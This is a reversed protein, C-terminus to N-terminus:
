KDSKIRYLLICIRTLNIKFVKAFVRTPEFKKPLIGNPHSSSFHARMNHVSKFRSFCQLHPCKVNEEERHVVKFHKKASSNSSFVKKCVPCVNSNFDIDPPKSRLESVSKISQYTKCPTKKLLLPSFFVM